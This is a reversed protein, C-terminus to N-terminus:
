RRDRRLEARLDLYFDPDCDRCTCAEADGTASCADCEAEIETGTDDDFWVVGVGDCVECPKGHGPLHM